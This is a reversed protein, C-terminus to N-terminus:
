AKKGYNPKRETSSTTQWVIQGSGRREIEPYFEKHKEVIDEAIMTIVKRSGILKYNDELLKVIVNFFSRKPISDYRNGTQKQM